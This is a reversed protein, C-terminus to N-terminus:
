ESRAYEIIQLEAGCRPDTSIQTVAEGWVARQVDPVHMRAVRSSPEHFMVEVPKQVITGVPLHEVEDFTTHGIPIDRDRLIRRGDIREHHERFTSGDIVEYRNRDD